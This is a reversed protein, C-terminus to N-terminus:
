CSNNILLLIYNVDSQCEHGCDVSDGMDDLADDLLALFYEFIVLYTSLFNRGEGASLRGMIIFFDDNMCAELCFIYFSMSMEGHPSITHGFVDVFIVKCDLGM